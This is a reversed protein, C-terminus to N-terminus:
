YTCEVARACSVSQYCKVLGTFEILPWASFCGFVKVNERNLCLSELLTVRGLVTVCFLINLKELRKFHIVINYPPIGCCTSSLVEVRRLLIMVRSFDEGGRVRRRLAGLCKSHYEAM